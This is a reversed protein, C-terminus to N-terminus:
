MRCEGNKSRGNKVITTLIAVIENAEQTIPGLRESNLLECATLLRLWYHTERAEKLAINCKSLFDAKSQAAHAEELNAGISTGSRLIQSALIKSTPDSKTLHQHLRVIRTSFNFTRDQIEM